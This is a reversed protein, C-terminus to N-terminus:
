SIALLSYQVPFYSSSAVVSSRRSLMNSAAVSFSRRLRGDRASQRFHGKVHWTRLVHQMSSLLNAGPNGVM